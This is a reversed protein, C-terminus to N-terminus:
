PRDALHDLSLILSLRWSLFWTFTAKRPGRILHPPQCHPTGVGPTPAAPPVAAPVVPGSDHPLPIQDQIVPQFHSSPPDSSFLQLFFCSVCVLGHNNFGHSVMTRCPRHQLCLDKEFWEDFLLLVMAVRLVVVTVSASSKSFPAPSKRYKSLCSIWIIM